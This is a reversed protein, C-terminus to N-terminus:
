SERSRAASSGRADGPGRWPSWRADRPSRAADRGGGQVHARAPLSPSLYHAPLLRSGRSSRASM